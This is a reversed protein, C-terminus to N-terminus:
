RSPSHTRLLELCDSCYDYGECVLDNGCEQCIVRHGLASSGKIM